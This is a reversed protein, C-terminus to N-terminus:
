GVPLDFSALDNVLLSRLANGVVPIWCIFNHLFVLLVFRALARDALMSYLAFVFPLQVKIEM